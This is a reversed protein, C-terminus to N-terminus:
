YFSVFGIWLVLAMYIIAWAKTIPLYRSVAPFKKDYWEKHAWAIIGVVVSDILLLYFVVTQITDM